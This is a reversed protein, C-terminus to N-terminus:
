NRSPFIGQVAICYNNVTYPQMLNIPQNGGTSVLGQLPQAAGVPAYIQINVADGSTPDSGNTHALSLNTSGPAAATAAQGSAFLLHSHMSLNQQTLTYSGSGGYQGMAYRGGGPLQGQGVLTRGRTDPIAFNTVGDGGYSNGILAFLTSYQSISLLSGNCIMWGRPAWDFPFQQLLGIFVESM